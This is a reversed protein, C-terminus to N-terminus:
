VSFSPRSKLDVNEMVIKRFAENSQLICGVSYCDFISNEVYSNYYPSLKMIYLGTNNAYRREM